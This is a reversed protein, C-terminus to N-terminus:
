YIELIFCVICLATIKIVGGEAVSEELTATNKNVSAYLLWNGFFTLLLYPTVRYKLTNRRIPSWNQELIYKVFKSDYLADPKDRIVRAFKNILRNKRHFWKIDIMSVRVARTELDSRRCCFGRNYTKEIYAELEKQVILKDKSAYTIFSENSEPWPVRAIQRTSCTEVACNNMASIVWPSGRELIEKLDDQNNLIKLISFAPSMMAIELM